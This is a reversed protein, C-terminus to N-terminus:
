AASHDTDPRRTRTAEVVARNPHCEWGRRSVGQAMSERRGSALTYRFERFRLLVADSLARM